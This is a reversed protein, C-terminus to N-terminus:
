TNTFQYGFNIKHLRKLFVQFQVTKFFIRRTKPIKGLFYLCPNDNKWYFVYAFITCSLNSSLFLKKLYKHISIWFQNQALAEFFSSISLKSFFPRTKPIKGLFYLCPNDNKWYFVYAFITCSLNSSLFLKKLYKYISIWFQNQALAEFFSSISCKQFFHVLKPFKAWFIYAHTIM